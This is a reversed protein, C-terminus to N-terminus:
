KLWTDINKQIFADDRLHPYNSYIRDIEEKQGPSLKEEPNLCWIGKLLGSRHLVENIGPNCGKFNNAADFVASNCDTIEASEKLIDKPIDEGKRIVSKIRDLLEVAKRTWFAWHGLLGGAFRVQKGSFEFPTILDYVISDDNGTYLAIEKERGSEVLARIVDLTYYRNFPAIKVAVVNEIEFFRRWFDFGLRRGGVAPQLYFGFLPIVEAVTISHALLKQIPADKLATLSLLGADYGYGKATEAEEVAQKTDGCIGAIKIIKKGTERLTEAAIELVPKYLGVKKDHIAFQTTHVGVAIGGAGAAVYYRTLARQKKEDLKRRSNLALPHAPIVAGAQLIKKLEEKQLTSM